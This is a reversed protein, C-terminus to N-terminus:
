VLLQTLKSLSNVEITDTGTVLQSLKAHPKPGLTLLISGKYSIMVTLGNEKFQTALSKLQPLMGLLGKEKPVVITEPINKLLKKNLLNVGITEDEIRLQLTEKGSTLLCIKGSKLAHVPQM